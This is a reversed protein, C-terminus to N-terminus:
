PEHKNELKMIYTNEKLSLISSFLRNAEIENTVRSESGASPNGELDAETGYCEDRRYNIVGEDWLNTM